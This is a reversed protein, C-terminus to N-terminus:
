GLVPEASCIRFCLELYQANLIIRRHKTSVNNKFIHEYPGHVHAHTSFAESESQYANTNGVACYVSGFSKM